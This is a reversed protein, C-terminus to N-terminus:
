HYQFNVKTLKTSANNSQLLTKFKWTNGPALNQISEYNNGIQNNNIDYENMEVFVDIAKDTNNKITGCARNMGYEDTCTEFNLVEAEITQPIYAQRTNINNATSTNYSLCYLFLCVIFSITASIIVFITSKRM